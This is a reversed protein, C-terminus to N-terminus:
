NKKILTKYNKTSLEKGETLNIELYKITKPAITFPIM